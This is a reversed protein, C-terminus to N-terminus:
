VDLLEYSLLWSKLDLYEIVGVKSELLEGGRFIFTHPTYEVVGLYNSILSNLDDTNDTNAEVYYIKIDYNEVLESIIPKYEKCASCVSSGIYFVLTSKEALLASMDKAKIKTPGKQSSCGVFLILVALLLILKKM